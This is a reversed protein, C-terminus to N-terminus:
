LSKQDHWLYAFSDCNLNIDNTASVQMESDLKRGLVINYITMLKAFYADPSFKKEFTAGAHMGMKLALNKDEYLKLVARTIEDPCGLTVLLGNFGEEVVEPIGGIRSAIVPKAHMFAELLTLGFVESCVSPLIAAIAGQYENELETGSKFGLFEVNQINLRQVLKELEAWYCGDGAIRLKIHPIPAFAKILYELGKEKVLRGAYFFYEQKQSSTKQADYNANIFNNLIFMRERKIGSKEALEMLYTSPCIFADPIDYFKCQKRFLFELGAILSKKFSGSFCRNALCSLINGNICEAKQCYHCFGKMLTASPCAFHSDHFTVVSPIKNKRCAVLVSPTLSHTICNIHAIDPKVEQILRNLNREAEINYFLKLPSFREATSFDEPFFTSYKYNNEYYPQKNSSFFIVEVGKQQLLKGTHYSAKEAGGGFNGFTKNILLVKM